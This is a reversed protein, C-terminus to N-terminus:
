SNMIYTSFETEYTSNGKKLKLTIDIIQGNVTADFGEVYAGIEYGGPKSNGNYYLNNVAVKNTSQRFIIEKDEYCDDGKYKLQIASKDISLIGKSNAVLKDIQDTIEIAQTILENKDKINTVINQTLFYSNVLFTGIFVIIAISVVYEILLYGKNNM